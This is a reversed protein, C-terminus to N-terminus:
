KTVFVEYVEAPIYATGETASTILNVICGVQWKWNGWVVFSFGTSTVRQVLMIFFEELIGMASSNVTCVLVVILILTFLWIWFKPVISFLASATLM